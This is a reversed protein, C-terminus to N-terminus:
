TLILNENEIKLFIFKKNILTKLSHLIDKTNYYTKFSNLNQFFELEFTNEYIINSDSNKFIIKISNITSILTIEWCDYRLEIIDEKKNNLNIESM